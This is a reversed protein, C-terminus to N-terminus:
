WLWRWIGAVPGGLLPHLYTAVLWVLLGILLPRRGPWASGWRAKGRFQRAFPLFSTRSAWDQWGEGILVAHPGLCPDGLCTDRDFSLGEGPPPKIMKQGVRDVDAPYAVPFLHEVAQVM